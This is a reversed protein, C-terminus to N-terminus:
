AAMAYESYDEANIKQRNRVVADAYMRIGKVFAIL